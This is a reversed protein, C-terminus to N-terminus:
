PKHGAFHIIAVQEKVEDYHIDHNYTVKAFLDYMNEDLLKVENWHKYNLLDQDPAAFNIKM